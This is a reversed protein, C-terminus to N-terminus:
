MLRVIQKKQPQTPLDEKTKEFKNLQPRYKYLGFEIYRREHILKNVYKYCYTALALSMVADDTKNSPAYYQTNSNKGKSKDKILYILEDYLLEWELYKNRLEDKPLLCRSSFLMSELNSMLIVKNKLGSFNYPIILTNINQKKLEKYIWEIYTGQTGTGDIMLMDIKYTNCYKAVDKAVKESSLRERNINFVLIERTHFTEVRQEFGRNEFNIEGITLVTRDSVTSLDLGAVIYESNKDFIGLESNLIKNRIMMDRTIFKGDVIEYTMLYNVAVETSFEGLMNIDKLVAKKYREASIEDELLKLEYVDKWNYICHKSKEDFHAVYQMCSPNTSTIGTIVTVAAFSNTFPKISKMFGNEGFAETLSGEDLFLAAASFGDADTQTSLAWCESYKVSEGKVTMFIEIHNDKDIGSASLPTNPYLENFIKINKKINTRIPSFFKKVALEKYSAVITTWGTSNKLDAYKNGFITVFTAIEQIIKTKGAQRSVAVDWMDATFNIIDSLLEVSLGWQWLYLNGEMIKGYKKSPYQMAKKIYIIWDFIINGEEIIIGEYSGVDNIKVNYALPYFKGNENKKLLIKHKELYIVDDM